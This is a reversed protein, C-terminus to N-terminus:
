KWPQSAFYSRPQLTISTTAGSVRRQLRMVALGVILSNATLRRVSSSSHRLGKVELPSIRQAVHKSHEVIRASARAHARAVRSHM